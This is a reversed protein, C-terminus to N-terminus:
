KEKQLHEWAEDEEKSLWNRALAEESAKYTSFGGFVETEKEFLRERLLERILDQLSDFGHRKSYRKASSFMRESLKLSIQTGLFVFIYVIINLSRTEIRHLRYFSM